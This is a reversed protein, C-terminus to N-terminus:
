PKPATAKAIGFGAAVGAAVAGVVIAIFAPTSVIVNGKVLDKGFAENRANVRERRVQEQEDVLQGPFPAPEGTALKVSRGPAIPADAPFVVAAPEQAAAPAALCLVLLLSLTKM